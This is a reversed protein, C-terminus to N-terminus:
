FGILVGYSVCYFCVQSRMSSWNCRVKVLFRYSGGLVLLVVMRCYIRMPILLFLHSILGIGDPFLHGELLSFFM